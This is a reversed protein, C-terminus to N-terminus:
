LILINRFHTASSLAMDSYWSPYNHYPLPTSSQLPSLRYRTLFSVSPFCQARVAVFVVSDVSVLIKDVCADVQAPDSQTREDLKHGLMKLNNTDDAGVQLLTSRVVPPGQQEFACLAGFRMHLTRDEEILARLLTKVIRPKLAPYADGFRDMTYALLGAATERTTRSVDASGLSETLLSTLITPM